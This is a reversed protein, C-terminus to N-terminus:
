IEVISAVLRRAAESQPQELVDATKGEEVIRGADMVYVRGCLGRVLALDHSIFLCAM